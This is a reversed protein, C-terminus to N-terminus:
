LEVPRGAISRNRKPIDVELVDNYSEANLWSAPHPIWRGGDATWQDSSKHDELSRHIREELEADPKIRSWADRARPKKVKRPYASWFREFSEALLAQETSEKEAQQPSKQKGKGKSKRKERHRQQRERNAELKDLIKGGYDEWDHVRLEDSEEDEYIFGVEELAEIFKQPDGEWLAGDAIEEDTWRGIFGAPAYEMTFTWLGVLHGVAEVQSVGLLRAFRGTKPHRTLEVSVQIWRSM